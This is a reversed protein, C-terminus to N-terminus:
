LDNDDKRKSAEERALFNAVAQERSRDISNSVDAIVGFFSPEVLNVRKSHNEFVKVAYDSVDEKVVLLKKRFYRPTTVPSGNVHLDYGMQIRERNALAFSLGMGKSMLAFPPTRGALDISSDVEKLLYNAVYRARGKVFPTLSIHGFGWAELVIDSVACPLGLFVAHYHPRGHREGYEGCAFYKFRRPAIAKRLRKLFLQLVRKDVCLDVPAFEDSYTLTAFSSDEYNDSEWVMRNAWDEARNVRCGACRGCPVFGVGPLRSKSAEKTGTFYPHFCIM